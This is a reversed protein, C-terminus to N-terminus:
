IFIFFSLSVFVSEDPDPIEKCCADDDFIFIKRVLEYYRDVFIQSNLSTSQILVPPLPQHYYKNYSSYDTTVNFKSSSSSSIINENSSNSNISMFESLNSLNNQIIDMDNGNIKIDNKWLFYNNGKEEEEEVFRVYSTFDERRFRDFCKQTFVKSPKAKRLKQQRLLIHSTINYEDKMLKALGWGRVFKNLHNGFEGSLQVVLTVHHYQSSYQQSNTTVEHNTEGKNDKTTNNHNNTVNDYRIREVDDPFNTNTNTNTNNENKITNIRATSTAKNNVSSTSSTNNVVSAEYKNVILGSKIATFSLTSTYITHIFGAIIVAIIGVVIVNRYKVTLLRTSHVM